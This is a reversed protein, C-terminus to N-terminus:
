ESPFCKSWHEHRKEAYSIMGASATECAEKSAFEASGASSVQSYTATIIWILIWKM